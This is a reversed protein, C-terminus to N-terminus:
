NSRRKKLHRDFFSIVLPRLDRQKPELHFSHKAGDIIELQHEVKAKRCADSLLQSQKVAVTTDSTGHLILSPPDDPTVYTVPSAERCLKILEPNGSIESPDARALLDYPGYMPVVAQVRCSHEGYPGDPDLGDNQDTYGVMAALHGGASGGIVGIRDPNIGYRSASARLFRVATKCDQLNGPWVPTLRKDLADNAM